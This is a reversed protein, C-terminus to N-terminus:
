PHRMKSEAARKIDRRTIRGDHLASAVLAGAVGLRALRDLDAGNRVGGAAFVNKRGASRVVSELRTVDPGQRSGVRALSMVIIRPPWAAASGSLPVPGLFRHRRFDLSLIAGAGRIKRWEDLSAISESGVVASGLGLRQWAQFGALTKIGPDVWLDLGPFATRIAALANRNDGRGEIADLDAAYLTRFPHLRLLAGIVDTPSSGPCLRSRIPKYAARRGAQARVVAGNKLDIVPILIM